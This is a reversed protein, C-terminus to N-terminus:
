WIQNSVLTSKLITDEHKPSDFHSSNNQQSQLPKLVFLSDKTLAVFGTFNVILPKTPWGSLRTCFKSPVNGMCCRASLQRWRMCPWVVRVKCQSTIGDQKWNAYPMCDVPPQECTLLFQWSRYFPRTADAGEVLVIDLTKRSSPHTKMRENPEMFQGWISGGGYWWVAEQRGRLPLLLLLKDM